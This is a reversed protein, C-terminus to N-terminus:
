THPRQQINRRLLDGPCHCQLFAGALVHTFPLGTILIVGIAVPPQGFVKAPQRGPQILDVLFLCGAPQPVFEKVIALPRKPQIPLLQKPCQQHFQVRLHRIRKVRHEM